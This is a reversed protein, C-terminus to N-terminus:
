PAGGGRCTLARWVEAIAPRPDRMVDAALIRIVLLGQTLLLLDKRRDRRYAEPDGFHHFGAIEIRDQHSLLDAAGAGFRVSLYTNLEFRGAISPTVTVGATATGLDGWRRRRDIPSVFLIGGRRKRIPSTAAVDLAAGHPVVVARGHLQDAESHRCRVLGVTLV